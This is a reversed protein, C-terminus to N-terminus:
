GEFRWSRSGPWGMKRRFTCWPFKKWSSVPRRSQYRSWRCRTGVWCLTPSNNPGQVHPLLFLFRRCARLLRNQESTQLIHATRPTELFFILFLVIPQTFLWYKAIHRPGPLVWLCVEFNNEPQLGVVFVLNSDRLLVCDLTTVPRGVPCLV